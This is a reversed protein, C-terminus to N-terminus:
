LPSFLIDIGYSTLVPSLVLTNIGRGISNDESLYVGPMTTSQPSAGSTLTPSAVVYDNGGAFQIMLTLMDNGSAATTIKSLNFPTNFVIDTWTGAVRTGSYSKTAMLSCCAGMTDSRDLYSGVWDNLYGYATIGLNLFTSDSSPPNYVRLGKVSIGNTLTTYFRNGVILSGGGDTYVTQTTQPAQTDFVSYTPAGASSAGDTAVDGTGPIGTTANCIGPKPTSSASAVYYTRGSNSSALCYQTSDTSVSYVYIQSGSSVLNLGGIALTAPYLSAPDNIKYLELKRAAQSLTEQLNANNANKVIGNYAVITIAALIAIVVVVVLLEVITFGQM